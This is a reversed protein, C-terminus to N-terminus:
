GEASTKRVRHIEAVRKIAALFNEIGDIQGIVRIQDMAKQQSYPEMSRLSAIALAKAVGFEEEAISMLADMMHKDSVLRDIAPGIAYLEKETM